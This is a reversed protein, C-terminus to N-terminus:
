NAVLPLVKRRLLARAFLPIAGSVQILFQFEM